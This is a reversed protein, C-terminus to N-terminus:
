PNSEYYKRLFYEELHDKTMASGKRWPNRKRIDDLLDKALKVHEFPTAITKGTSLVKFIVNKRIDELVIAMAWASSLDM